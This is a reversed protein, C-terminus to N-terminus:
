SINNFSNQLILGSVRAFDDQSDIGPGPMKAVLGVKIKHGHHLVRLQELSESKEAKSETLLAYKLIFEARYAYLGVHRLWPSFDSIETYDQNKLAPIVSRSFYLARSKKDLVVKATNPNLLEELGTFPCALTAVGADSDSALVEAAHRIYEPPMLPEDGQLNVVLADSSINEKQIVESIRETGSKHKNSTMCVEAGFEMAKNKIRNDDAAIIVREAGSAVATQWVYQLVPKGAIELLLKGPLRISALRAPIVIIFKM